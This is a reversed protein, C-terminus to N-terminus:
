NGLIIEQYNAENGAEDIVVLKVKSILDWIHTMDVNYEINISSSQYIKSAWKYEGNIFYKYSIKYVLNSLVTANDSAATWNLNWTCPNSVNNLCGTATLIVRGEDGPVPPIVDNVKEVIEIEYDEVEGWFFSGCCNPSSGYKMAVRMRTPGLVAANPSEIEAALISYSNGEFVEEGDDDFDGDSNFDVWVKWYENYSGYKFGPELSIETKGGATISFVTPSASFFYGGDDGSFFSFSGVEVRNIYEYYSNEGKAECYVTPVDYDKIEVFYDEVEGYSFSECLGPSSKWKMAVRMRTLGPLADLPVNISGVIESYSNGEFVKEGDDNFDGDGNLDIWVKWFENYSGYKFGPTLIIQTGEGPVLNIITSSSPSLYGGDDGDDIIYPTSSGVQVSKIFEYYSSEGKAPCYFAKAESFSLCVFSILFFLINLYNIIKKM